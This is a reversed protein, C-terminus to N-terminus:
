SVVRGSRVAKEAVDNQLFIALDDPTGLGYMGTGIPYTGIRVQGDRYLRTYVPAVYFEGLRRENAAIMQRALRCFDHGRRFNYIGVTAENSVVQKEVVQCVQQQADRLVYSWKADSAHFTMLLGDLNQLDMTALYDDIDIDVWQDSNAIMLPQANDILSAAALVTCAAGDTLEPLGIVDCGPALRQLEPQFCYRELHEQQCIFIFRHPCSPRLNRIVLEVMPLGNVPIFPKPDTFGAQSFRSGLGAMPIVINLM